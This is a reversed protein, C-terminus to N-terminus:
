INLGEHRVRQRVREILFRDTYCKLKLEKKYWAKLDANNKIKDLLFDTTLSFMSDNDEDRIDEIEEFYPDSQSIDYLRSVFYSSEGNDEYNYVYKNENQPKEKLVKPHISLWIFPISDDSKSNVICKIETRNDILIKIKPAIEKPIFGLFLGSQSTVKIANSDSTNEIDPQLYLKKGVKLSRAFKHTSVDRYFLGQLEVSYCDNGYDYYKVGYQRKSSDSKKIPSASKLTQNLVQQRKVESDVKRKNDKFLRYIAVICIFAILIGFFIQM